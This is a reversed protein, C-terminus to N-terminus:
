RENADASRVPRNYTAYGDVQLIAAFGALHREIWEGGRCGELRYAAM